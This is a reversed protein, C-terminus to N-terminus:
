VELKLEETIDPKESPDNRLRKVFQVQFAACFLLFLLEDDEVVDHVGGQPAQSGVSHRSSSLTHFSFYAGDTKTM